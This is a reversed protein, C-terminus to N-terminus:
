MSRQTRPPLKLWVGAKSSTDEHLSQEGPFGAVCFPATHEEAWGM